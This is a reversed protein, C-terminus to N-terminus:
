KDVKADLKNSISELLRKVDAMDDRYDDRRVYTDPLGRELEKMDNQMDRVATWVTRLIWGAMIMVIGLASNLLNQYEM